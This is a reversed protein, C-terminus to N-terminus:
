VLDVVTARVAEPAYRLRPVAFVATGTRGESRITYLLIRWEDADWHERVDSTLDDALARFAPSNHLQVVSSDLPVDFAAPSSLPHTWRAWTRRWPILWYRDLEPSLAVVAGVGVAVAASGVVWGFATFPVPWFVASLSVALLLGARYVSRSTIPASQAGMCGCSAEPQTRQAYVLFSTFGAFLLSSAFFPMRSPWFLSLGVLLEVGGLLRYAAAPHSTFRSLASGATLPHRLKLQASWLLVVAIMLAQM